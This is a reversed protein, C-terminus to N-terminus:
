HLAVGHWSALGMLCVLLATWMMAKGIEVVKANGALAFMLLGAVLVLLPILPLM